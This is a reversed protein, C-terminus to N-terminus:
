ISVILNLLDIQFWATGVAFGTFWGRTERYVLYGAIIAVIFDLILIM